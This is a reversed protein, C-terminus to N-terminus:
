IVYTIILRFSQLTQLSQRSDCTIRILKLETPVRSRPRPSEAGPGALPMRVSSFVRHDPQTPSTKQNGLLGSATPASPYLRQHSSEAFLRPPVGASPALQQGPQQGPAPGARAGGPAPQLPAPPSNRQRSLKVPRSEHKQPHKQAHGPFPPPGSHLAPAATDRHPCAERDHWVAGWEPDATHGKCPM